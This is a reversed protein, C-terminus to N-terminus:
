ICVSRNAPITMSWSLAPKKLATVTDWDFGVIEGSTGVILFGGTTAASCVQSDKFPSFHYM